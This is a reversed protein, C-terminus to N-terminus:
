AAANKLGYRSLGANSMRSASLLLEGGGEILEEPRHVDLHLLNRVSRGVQIWIRLAPDPRDLPFAQIMEDDEPFAVQAVEHPLVEGVVVGFPRM